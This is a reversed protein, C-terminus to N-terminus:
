KYKTADNIHNDAEKTNNIPEFNSEYYDKAVLLNDIMSQKLVNVIEGHKDIHYKTNGIHFYLGILNYELTNVSEKFGREEAFDMILQELEKTVECGHITKM